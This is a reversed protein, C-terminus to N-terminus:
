RPKLTTKDLAVSGGRARVVLWAREHEARLEVPRAPLDNCTPIKGGDSWTWTAIAPGDADTRLELTGEGAGGRSVIRPTVMWTREDSTATTPGRPVPLALTVTGEGGAGASSPSVALVHGDSACPAHPDEVDAWAGAHAAPPWDSEAEFRWTDSSGGPPTWPTV